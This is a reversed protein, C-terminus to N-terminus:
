LEKLLQPKLDTWVNKIFVQDDKFRNFMYPAYKWLMEEGLLSIEVNDIKNFGKAEFSSPFLIGNHTLTKIM